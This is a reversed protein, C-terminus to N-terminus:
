GGDGAESYGRSKLCNSFLERRRKTAGFLAMQAQYTDDRGLSTGGALIQDRGVERETESAAWGRCAAEDAKWRDAPLDPNQWEGSGVCAALALASALVLLRGPSIKM